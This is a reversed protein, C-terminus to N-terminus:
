WKAVQRKRFQSRHWRRDEMAFRKAKDRSGFRETTRRNHRIDSYGGKLIQFPRKVKNLYDYQASQHKKLRFVDFYAPFVFDSMAIGDINFTEEEVADCVEYAWLSSRPGECWLTAMPDILMECLEHCATVSVLDDSRITPKVFVKALPMGKWTIDHYGEADDADADDLFIMNWLGSRTKRAKILKAPTGWVPVFCEDLFKQLASILEDFDVGLSIKAKNVCAITPVVNRNFDIKTQSQKTPM